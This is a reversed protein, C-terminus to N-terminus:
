PDLGTWKCSKVANCHQEMKSPIEQSNQYTIKEPSSLIDAGFVLCWAAVLSTSNTPGPFSRFAPSTGVTRAASCNNDFLVCQSPFQLINPVLCFVNSPGVNWLFCVPNFHLSHKVFQKLHCFAGVLDEQATCLTCM